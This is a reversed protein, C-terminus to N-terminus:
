ETRQLPGFWQQPLPSREDSQLGTIPQPEEPPLQRIAGATKVSQSRLDGGEELETTPLVGDVPSDIFEGPFAGEGGSGATQERYFPDNWVNDPGVDMIGMDRYINLRNREYSVWIGIMQNQSRLISDLSDQIQQGQLGTGRNVQQGVRPPEFALEVSNDFRAVAIRLAQRTTELNRRLVELQRWEERVDQKIQDEFQMYARRARQYNVLAVRYRNREDIQDIPTDFSVGVDFSSLDGQFDFPERGNRTNFDAAVELNLVSKLDQAVVEIQRRADMVDARANKLDLRNDLAIQVSEEMSTEYPIVDVLEVRLGIEIAQLSQVTKLLDEQATKLDFVWDKVNDIPVRADTSGQAIENAEEAIREMEFVADDFLRRDREVDYKLREIEAESELTELRREYVPRLHEFDDRVITLGLEAAKRQLAQFSEAVARVRQRDPEDANLEGWIPIFAMIEQELEVLRPDLFQFQELLQDDITLEFDTRLGLLIKFRDLADQLNAQQQRLNNISNALDSQLRLVDLSVTKTTLRSQIEGVARQYAPDDSLSLLQQVQEDTIGGDPPTGRWILEQGDADYEILDALEPPFVLGAPIAALPERVIAGSDQATIATLAEVQQQLRFINGESNRIQQLTQLLSLYGSPGGVVNTFFIRRFRALDRVAYLLNREAQTLNELEIKRGAGRLLPQTLRFALNSASNTRSGGGFLWVTSNTLEVLWQGGTPLLQSIGFNSPMTVRDGDGHPVFTAGLGIGPTGRNGLYRVSYQFREGTVVLASLFVNEIERQYDRNHILALELAEGLTLNEVAPQPGHYEGTEEDYYEPSMEFPLLWQPNEVSLLDGFEHWCNYGNWGDVWHMYTHADPDDPPLPSYDPDYPDYFRSRPDPNVDIRPIAWRPDTLNESIAEYSDQEAQERWFPRSCGSVVALICLCAALRARRVPQSATNMIQHKHRTM